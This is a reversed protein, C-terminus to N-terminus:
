LCVLRLSDNRQRELGFCILSSLQCSDHWERNILRM